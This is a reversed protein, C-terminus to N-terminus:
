VNALSLLSPHGWFKEHSIYPCAAKRLDNHSSKKKKKKEKKKPPVFDSPVVLL